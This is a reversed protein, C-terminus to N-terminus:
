SNNIPQSSQAQGTTAKLKCSVLWWLALYTIALLSFAEVLVAPLSPDMFALIASWGFLVAIGLGWIVALRRYDETLASQCKSCRWEARLGSHWFCNWGQPHGCSPCKKHGPKHLPPNFWAM